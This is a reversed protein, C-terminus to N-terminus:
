GGILSLFKQGFMNWIDLLVMYSHNMQLEDRYPSLCPRLSRIGEGHLKFAIVLAVPDLIPLEGDRQFLPVFFVRYSCFSMYLVRVYKKAFIITRVM